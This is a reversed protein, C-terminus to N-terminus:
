NQPNGARFWKSSRGAATNVNITLDVLLLMTYRESIHTTQKKVSSFPRRHHDIKLDLFVNWLAFSLSLSLSSLSLSLSSLSLLSLSLSLSLRACVGQCTLPYFDDDDDHLVCVCVCARGCARVFSCCSLWLQM